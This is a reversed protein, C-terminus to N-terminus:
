EQERALAPRWLRTALEGFLHEGGDVAPAAVIDEWAPRRGWAAVLETGYSEKRFADKLDREVMWRPRTSDATMAYLRGTDPCLPLLRGMALDHLAVLDALVVTADEVAAYTARAPADAEGRGISRAVWAGPHAATLAVLSIWAELRQKAKLKSYNVRVLRHDYIGTVTGTLRRGGGLDVAVDRAEPTIGQTSTEFLEVLPGVAAATGLTRRWGYRGPPM